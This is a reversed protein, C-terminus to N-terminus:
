KIKDKASFYKYTLEVGTKFDIKSAWNLVRKAKDPSLSSKFLEGPRQPMYVPKKLYGSIKALEFFLDNVSKTKGTAINIIDNKGKSLAAVNAAVIDSVFVYDRLQNGNGFIMIKDDSLIRKIFIAVVGAEGHPDQRPGYVNGYRLALYNLGYTKAYYNLYIEVTRKAVGYPSLPEPIKTETPPIRGCEGYMVGGSSAFIFKKVKYLISNELLNLTGIINVGADFMPDSVSKRVDIQAAHHNVMDPKEKKFIDNIKKKDCIDVRYFKAKPNLNVKKGSSLNDVVVVKHGAKIYADCINSAIFGAGGTILIKM